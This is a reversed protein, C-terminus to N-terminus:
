GECAAGRVGAIDAGAGRVLVLDEAALKGALAVLLGAQHASAVWERLAAPRVLGSLGRGNKDATDLLVGSAGADAAFELCEDATLSGVRDADAYAVVVVGSKGAGGSSAGRVAAATLAAARSASVIGAFGVKVLAAGAAAYAYAAREIGTEDEADGLAATVLRRGAVEQQIGRLVDLDVAGLAGAWPNKADIIDAGGALAASAEAPNSVSVLLRLTRSTTPM